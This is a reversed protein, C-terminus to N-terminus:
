IYYLENSSMKLYKNLSFLTCFYTIIIGFLFVAASVIIIAKLDIVATIQPEFNHM